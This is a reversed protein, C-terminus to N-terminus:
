GAKRRGGIAAARAIVGAARSSLNSLDIRPADPGSITAKKPLDGRRVLPANKRGYNRLLGDRVMRGLHEATFGCERAAPRLKLKVDDSTQLRLELEAAADAYAQAASPAYPKLGAARNRWTAALEILPGTTM